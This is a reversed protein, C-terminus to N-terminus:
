KPRGGVLAQFLGTAPNSPTIDGTMWDYLYEGTQWLQRTPLHAIYGATIVASKVDSRTVDHESSVAHQVLGATGAISAGVDAVPTASFDNEGTRLKKDIAQAIDRVGVVLQFPYLLEKRALWAMWSEDSDDNPGRGKMLDELVAPVFWLLALSAVLRPANRDLAFQRGTQEFQNFLISMSSYFMTFLRQVEGGRQIAALDKAAGAAQTTRVVSDAYDIAGQEDGAAVHELEGDMAKRYAGLWTPISVSMDMWGMLTFFAAGHQTLDGVASPRRLQDRVDRDFNAVRDRMMQSRESIFEWTHAIAFPNRYADRLGLAAYKAGIENVSNTFGLTQTIASTMKLGLGVVTAGQRARAALRALFDSYERPRDGAIGKLWPGLQRYMERGVAGEITERIQDDRVLKAVDIVARRYALDHIVQNLHRSLVSLELLLPKGGTNQRAKLHGHRTMARASLGGFMESVDAAEDLAAQRTSLDQDFVIPYYGGTLEHVQGSRDRIAFAQAEVKEPALGTVERELKQADPWYANIHDWIAQVTRWDRADLHALIREVQAENWGYGRMLADRNYENGWNLAISLITAKTFTGDSGRTRAEPLYIKDTFWRARERRSYASFITALAAADARRMANEHNEAEAMPKFFYQWVVGRPAQGDLARFLFEMRTHEAIGRKLGKKLAYGLGRAHQAPEDRVTLNETITNVIETRAADMERARASALLQNKVRTLHEIQKVTDRVGVLEELSADKYHRRQAEALLEDPVDVQIGEKEQADVFALLSHRRALAANSIRAFDYRERIADIQELYEGGAKGLRARKSPKDFTRMYDVIGDVTERATTAARYLEHNLLERQKETFAGEIDGKLFAAAAAKAAKAEARQYLLPNIERVRKAGITREAEARVEEVSPIRRTIKRVLGKLTALHDSALHQLERRLVEARQETHVAKMAEVPLTGDTLLDGHEAHMRQDTLAEIRRRPNETTLLSQILEDGSGFGFTEAAQDPHIGGEKAYVGRPLRRLLDEYEPRTAYEDVVAQRDLKPATGDVFLAARVAEPVESGDPLTGSRLVSYALSAPEQNVQAAVEARVKAREEKWQRTQERRVEAIAKEALEDRAAQRAAEVDASYRQAEADSMGVAKPDNFLPAMGQQAEAAQIEEDSALLRDFVTRVEPTLEVHLNRLQKYVFLMWARIRAFASRLASSPAKGEMLYAEFGRAIQEHQERTLPEDGKAGVWDRLAALDSAARSGEGLRFAQDQLLQVAFHGTEHVFTSLDASPFLDIAISVPGIRIRGRPAGGSPQLLELSGALERGPRAGSIRESTGNAASTRDRLDRLIARMEGPGVSGKGGTSGVFGVRMQGDVMRYQAQVIDGSPLEYEAVQTEDNIARTGVYSAAVDGERRPGQDFSFDTADALEQGTLRRWIRDAVDTVGRRELEAELKAISKERAAIRGAARVAEGKMSVHPRMDSSTHMNEDPVITPATNEQSNTELLRALEDVVGDTSVTELNTRLAGGPTRAYVFEGADTKAKADRNEVPVDYMALQQETRAATREAERVPANERAAIARNALEQLGIPEGTVPQPAVPSEARQIDLGYRDLLEHPTVGEEDAARTLMAALLKSETEAVSRERGAAELRDAITQQVSEAAADTPTPTTEQATQQVQARLERAERGNMAGPSLRLEDVFFNNHESPALTTAYRATPIALDAGSQLAEVYPERSGIVEEAAQAPDVGKSQWYETWQQVPAYVTEVPGNQTIRSVVDQMQQPLEKVLKSDRAVDGIAQFFRTNRRAQVAEPLEAAGGAVGGALAGSVAADLIQGALEGANIPKGATLHVGLYQIATTAAQVGGQQIAHTIATRAVRMTLGSTAAERIVAKEAGGLALKEAIQGPTVMQLATIPIDLGLAILDATPSDQVGLDQMQGRIDGYGMTGAAAVGGAPGGAATAAVISAIASAGSGLQFGLYDRLNGASHIDRVSGVNPRYFEQNAKADAIIKGGVATASPLAPAEGPPLTTNLPLAQEKDTLEGFTQLLHGAGQELGLLGSALGRGLNRFFGGPKNEAAAQNAIRELAALKYKEDGSAAAANAPHEAMWQAVIPSTRRFAQADFGKQEAAQTVADLNREILDVPLQTRQQLQLIKTAQDPAISAAADTVLPLARATDPEGKRSLWRDLGTESAGPVTLPAAPSAQGAEPAAHHEALFRDIATGM